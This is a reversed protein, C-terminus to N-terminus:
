SRIDGNRSLCFYLNHQSYCSCLYCFFLIFIILILLILLLVLAFHTEDSSTTEGTYYSYTANSTRKRVLSKVTDFDYAMYTELDFSNTSNVLYETTNRLKQEVLAYVTDFDLGTYYDFSSMYDLPKSLVGIPFIEILFLSTAKAGSTLPVSLPYTPSM